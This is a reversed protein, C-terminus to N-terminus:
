FDTQPKLIRPSIQYGLRLRRQGEICCMRIHTSERAIHSFVRVVVDHARVYAIHGILSRRLCACAPKCCRCNTGGCTIVASALVREVSLYEALELAELAERWDRLTARLQILGRKQEM